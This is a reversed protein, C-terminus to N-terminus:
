HTAREIWHSNSLVLRFIFIANEELPVWLIHNWQMFGWKKGENLYFEKGSKHEIRVICVYLRLVYIFVFVRMIEVDLLLSNVFLVSYNIWWYIVANMSNPNIISIDIHMCSCQCCQIVLWRFRIVNYKHSHRSLSFITILFCNTVCGTSSFPRYFLFSFRLASM